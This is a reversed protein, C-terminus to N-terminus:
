WLDPVTSKHFERARLGVAATCGAGHFTKVEETHGHAQV